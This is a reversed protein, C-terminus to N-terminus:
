VEPTFIQRLEQPWTTLTGKKGAANGVKQPGVPNNIKQLFTAREDRRNQVIQCTITKKNSKQYNVHCVEQELSPQSATLLATMALGILFTNNM